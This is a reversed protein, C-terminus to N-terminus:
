QCRPDEPNALCFATMNAIENELKNVKGVDGFGGGNDCGYLFLLTAVSLLVIMIAVVTGGFRKLMAEEKPGYAGLTGYKM